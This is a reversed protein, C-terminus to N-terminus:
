HTNPTFTNQVLKGEHCSLGAQNHLFQSFPTSLLLGRWGSLKFSDSQIMKFLDTKNAINNPNINYDIAIQQILAFGVSILVEEQPTPPTSPAPSTPWSDPSEFVEDILAVWESGHNKVSSAKIHPVKYLAEPTKPPRKAIAVLVEDSMVWRKPKNNDIAFQERWEALKYAIAKNKRSLKKTAKIKKGASQTDIKYLDENLLAQFDEELASQQQKTLEAQLKEYLPALYRVDNIAYELQKETLPRQQWNTRTQDKELTFDLESKVVRALGALDGHHLFLCAIQTDYIAAPMQGSVQYLVEIDQRASHFVKRISPNTLISWLATLDEIALPDIIAAQGDHTQIQILSLISFYTDTRVFETDIAIWPCTNLLACFAELDAQQDIIIYNM